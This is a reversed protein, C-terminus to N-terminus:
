SLQGKEVTRFRQLRKTQYVSESKCHPCTLKHSESHSTITVGGNADLTEPRVEGLLLPLGCNPNSCLFGFWEKGAEAYRPKESMM